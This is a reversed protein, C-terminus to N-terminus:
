PSNGDGPPNRVSVTTGSIFAPILGIIEERTVAELQKQLQDYTRLSGYWLWDHSLRELWEPNSQAESIRRGLLHSRAEEIEQESPPQTRLGELTERLLRKMAPLKDPDVGIGLEIWGTRGDTRYASEIYYVLGRESIAEVGLRGEYHHSLIYLVMEWAPVAAGGPGPAQVVYGLQEQAVAHPLVTEIDMVGPAPREPPPTFAQAPLHGFRDNLEKRIAAPKLDGSVAILLPSVPTNEPPAELGLVDSFIRQMVAVPDSNGQAGAPWPGSSALAAQVEQMAGGLEDPLLKFDLASMSWAPQHPWAPAGPAFEALPTVVRLGVTPSLRSPFLFVPLGNDLRFEAPSSAPTVVEADILHRVVVPPRFVVGKESQTASAEGSPAQPADSLTAPASEDPLDERPASPASPGYWAINRQRDGLYRELVHRVDAAGVGDLAQPLQLLVDLADLGSFFALQHAADETTQVDFILSRRVRQRAAEIAALGAEDPVSMQAGLTAIAESIATETHARSADAAISGSVVFVYDQASPPFWTTLDGTIRDLPAGPRVPAGWDNHLFNVGSGGGLLEQTLLFAAYDPNRVSPARWAIKFYQREVEGTLYIRREGIQPPEVTHPEPTPPKVEYLGFQTQVEQVVHQTHVDGVVALIANGPHYHQRYFAVADAQSLQAVDSEWGITNNRYPHALFTLYMVNDLLVSGPDNEYGHMESLVAGREAVVDAAPIELRAMRDAEIRLLLNLQERPATAFYTTQDLWTYGHWEGGVAYISSVVGTGPFNESDRFAMHELFHALGTSGATENRAGVRYLMQVSVVPLSHEELVILTMGNDLHHVTARSLDLYAYASVPALALGLSVLLCCMALVASRPGTLGHRKM